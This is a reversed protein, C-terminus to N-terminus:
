DVKVNAAKLIPWWKDIESKQYVALAEPSLQERPPIDFGQDALKQRVAPDTLALVIANNLKTNL